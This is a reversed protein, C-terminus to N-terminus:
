LHFNHQQHNSGNPHAGVFLLPCELWSVFLLPLQRSFPSHGPGHRREGPKARKQKVKVNEVIKKVASTILLRMAVIKQLTQMLSISFQYPGLQM